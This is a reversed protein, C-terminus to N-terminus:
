GTKPPPVPVKRSAMYRLYALVDNLDRDSLVSVDFGPMKAAPWRRLSQPDRILRRLADARLYETPNFPVNLDPGVTADGGLNMTHCVLCNKMAVAFGRKVSANATIGPPPVIAPFRQALPRTEEIKVVRYPWEEPVITGREPRQWVVYFPGATAPEGNKLPPWPADPPEIALYARPRTDGGDLLVNAELMAVFGDSATFRLSADPAVGGILASVPVAQYTMRTRYSPDKPVTITVLAPHALLASRAYTATQGGVTVTLAPESAAAAAAVLGCALVVIWALLGGMPMQARAVASRAPASM